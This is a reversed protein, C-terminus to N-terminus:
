HMESSVRVPLRPGGLPSFAFNVKERYKVPQTEIVRAVLIHISDDNQYEKADDTWSGFFINNDIMVDEKKVILNKGLLEQENVRQEIIRYKM